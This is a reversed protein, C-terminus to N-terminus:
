QWMVYGIAFGIVLSVFILVAFSFKKSDPNPERYITRNNIIDRLSIEHIPEQYM